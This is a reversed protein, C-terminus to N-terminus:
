CGLTGAHGARKIGLIDKVYSVVQHSSPGSPKNLNIVGYGILEEVDRKDPRCGFGWDTEGEKRIFIRRRVRDFFLEQKM